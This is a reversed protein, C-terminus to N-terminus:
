WRRWWPGRWVSWGCGDDDDAGDDDDGVHDDCEDADDEIAVGDANDYEDGNYGHDCGDVCGDYDSSVMMSMMTSVNLTHITLMDTTVTVSTTTAM